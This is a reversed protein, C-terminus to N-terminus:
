GRDRGLAKLIDVNSFGREKARSIEDLLHDKAADNGSVWCFNTVDQQLYRTDFIQNLKCLGEPKGNMSDKLSDFKHKIKQFCLLTYIKIKKM